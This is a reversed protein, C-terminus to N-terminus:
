IVGVVRWGRWGLKYITSDYELDRKIAFDVAREISLFYRTKMGIDILYEYNFSRARLSYKPWEKTIRHKSVVRYM